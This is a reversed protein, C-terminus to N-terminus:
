GDGLLQAIRSLVTRRRRHATEHRRVLELDAPQLDGLLDVIAQAPLTDYGNIGLDAATGPSSEPLPDPTAVVPEPMAAAVAAPPATRRRRANEVVSKGVFRAITAQKRWERRGEDILQPVASPAKLLFDLPELVFIKFGTFLLEQGDNRWSVPSEPDDTHHPEAPARESMVGVDCAIEACNSKPM